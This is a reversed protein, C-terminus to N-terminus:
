LPSALLAPLELVKERVTLTPVVVETVQAVLGTVTPDPVSQVAVTEPAEPETTPSVKEKVVETPDDDWNLEVLQVIEDPVLQETVYVGDV